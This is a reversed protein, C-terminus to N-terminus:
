AEVPEALADVGYHDGVAAVISDIYRLSEEHYARVAKETARGTDRGRVNRHFDYGIATQVFGDGVYIVNASSGIGASGKYTVIELFAPNQKDSASDRKQIVGPLRVRTKCQWGYHKSKETTTILENPNISM